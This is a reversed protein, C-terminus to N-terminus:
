SVSKKLGRFSHLNPFLFVTKLRDKATDIRKRRVEFAVGCATRFGRKDSKGSLPHPIGVKKWLEDFQDIQWGAEEARLLALDKLAAEFPNRGRPRRNPLEKELIKGMEQLVRDGDYSTDVLFLRRKSRFPIAKNSFEFDLVKASWNSAWAGKPTLLEVPHMFSGFKPVKLPEQYVPAEPFAQLKQRKTLRAFPIEPWEPSALFTLAYRNPFFFTPQLVHALKFRNRRKNTKRLRDFLRAAKKSTRYLQRAYEWSAALEREEDPIKYCLEARRLRVPGKSSPSSPRNSPIKM